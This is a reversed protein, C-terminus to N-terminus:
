LAGAQGCESQGWRRYFYDQAEVGDRALDVQISMRCHRLASLTLELEQPDDEVLLITKRSEM